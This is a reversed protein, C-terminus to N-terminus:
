RLPRTTSSACCSRCSVDGRRVSVRSRHLRLVRVRARHRATVRRAAAARRAPALILLGGALVGASRRSSCRTARKSCRWAAATGHGGPRPSRRGAFSIGSSRGTTRRRAYTSPTTRSTSSASGVSCRPPVTTSGPNARAPQLRQGTRAAYGAFWAVDFARTECFRRLRAIEDATVEGNKVLLTVTQWSRIM